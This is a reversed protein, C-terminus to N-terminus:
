NVGASAQDGIRCGLGRWGQQTKGEDDILDHRVGMRFEERIVEAALHKFNARTVPPQGQERCFLYYAHFADAVALHSDSQRFIRTRVFTRYAPEQNPDIIKGDVMRKHGTDGEFFTQDAVLITKAKQIIGSLVDDQRFKV